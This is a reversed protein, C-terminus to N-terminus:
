TIVKFVITSVIIFVTFFVALMPIISALEMGKWWGFGESFRMAFVAFAYGLIGSVAIAGIMHLM